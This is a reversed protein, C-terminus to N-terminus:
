QITVTLLVFLKITDVSHLYKEAIEVMEIRWNQSKLTEIRLFM